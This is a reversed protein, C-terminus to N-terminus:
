LKSSIRRQRVAEALKLVVEITTEFNMCSDTISKGYELNCAKGFVLKQKGENIHSEMM